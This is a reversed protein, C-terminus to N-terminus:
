ENTWYQINQAKANAKSKKLLSRRCICKWYIFWKNVYVIKKEERLEGCKETTTLM